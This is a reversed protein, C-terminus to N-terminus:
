CAHAEVLTLLGQKYLMTCIKVNRNRPIDEELSLTLSEMIILSLM